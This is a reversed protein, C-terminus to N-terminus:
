KLKDMINDHAMNILYWTSLIGFFCMNHSDDKLFFVLTLVMFLVLLILTILKLFNM